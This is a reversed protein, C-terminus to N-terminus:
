IFQKPTFLTPTRLNGTFINIQSSLQPQVLQVSRLIVTKHKMQKFTQVEEWKTQNNQQIYEVFFYSSHATPLM